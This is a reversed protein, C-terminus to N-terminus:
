KTIKLESTATERALAQADSTLGALRLSKITDLTVILPTDTSGNGALLIGLMVAEGKRKETGSTRLRDQLIPSPMVMRKGDASVDAVKASAEDPVAFGVAGFLLLVEGAQQRNARNNEKLVTNLWSKLEQGYEVDTVLGSLVFLPWDHTLQMAVDPLSVSASKALKFWALAKDPKGALAMILAAKPSFINLDSSPQLSGIFGALLQGMAGNLSSMDTSNIFKVILDSIKQPSQEKSLAQYLLSRLKAGTEESRLASTIQSAEFVGSSYVEALQKADIIGNAASREALALRANEDEAKAKLLDPILYAETRAYLEPPLPLAIQRLLALNLTKLPTLNRPLQKSGGLLNRNILTIFIDDKVKQERMLDLGLQAAKTDGTRLQCLILAKQWEVTNNESKSKAAMIEPMRDCIAKSEPGILEAETVSRMTIEDIRGPKALLALQWADDAHGLAMLKELRISTLGQATETDTAANGEPVAAATLLMRRALGNLAPSNTPLNMEPLLREVLARPTDNWMAAGLGGNSVTLLGMADPDVTGIEESAVPEGLDIPASQPPSTPVPAAPITEMAPPVTLDEPESIQQQANSQAEIIIPATPSVTM